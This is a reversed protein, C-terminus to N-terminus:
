TRNPRPRVTPIGPRNSARPRESGKPRSSPPPPRDSVGQMLVTDLVQLLDLVLSRMARLQPRNDPKPDLSSTQLAYADKRDGHLRELEARVTQLQSEALAREENVRALTQELIKVRAEAQTARALIQGMLDAEATREARERTLEAELELVREQPDMSRIAPPQMMLQQLERQTPKRVPNRSSSDPAREPGPPDTEM